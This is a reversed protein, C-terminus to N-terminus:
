PWAIVESFFVTVSILIPASFMRSPDSRVSFGSVMRDEAVDNVEYSKWTGSVHFAFLM